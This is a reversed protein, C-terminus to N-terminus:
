EVFDSDEFGRDPNYAKAYIIFDGFQVKQTGRFRTFIAARNERNVVGRWKKVGEFGTVEDELLIVDDLLCFFTENIGEKTNESVILPVDPVGTTETEKFELEAANWRGYSFFIKVPNGMGDTLDCGDTELEAVTNYRMVTDPEPNMYLKLIKLPNKMGRRDITEKLRPNVRFFADFIFQDTNSVGGDRLLFPTLELERSM